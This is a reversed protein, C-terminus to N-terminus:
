LPLEKKLPSATVTWQGKGVNRTGEFVLYSYKGYHPVLQGLRPLSAFDDTMIVLFNEFGNWNEGALVFTHGARPYITGNIIVSDDVQGAMESLSEPLEPPNLLVPAYTRDDEQFIDPVEVEAEGETLNSGFTKFPDIISEDVYNVFRKRPNGLFASIIPEVEEPYLRRFLDYDPDVEITTVDRPVDITYTQEEQELWVSTDIPRESGSFRVPILLEYNQGSRDALTFNVTLSHSEEQVASDPFDVALVPAGPRDIWEPIIYALSAGSTNEFAEIWEEWSIKVGIYDSYVQKWADFFPKTGIQEEIMHYIMMVKNYGITRTEPSTREAFERVPFDNQENVYSVYQKLIDKRYDRAAEPSQLLKYRYDAGYVTAGECWNGRKYDVFVSNGWWNHLVEHGLSTSVIFPLHIVQQGLLTWAPMGYGTPFFNEVVTFRQFAYPGILTDYMEIYDAAPTLYNEFLVTDEPFFYCYVDTEGTKVSDIVYPAAMFMCGDARYPNQYKQVKRDGVVTSALRDGDAISEWAVPIDATVVFAFLGDKGQPYYYSSPSLYAGKESVTGTVERGVQENSFRIDSVDGFYVARFIMSFQVPETRDYSFLAITPPKISDVELAPLSVGEPLKTSDMDPIILIGTPVDRLAFSDVLAGNSLLFLNWGSDVQMTGTVRTTVLHPAVDFTLHIDYSDFTVETAETPAMAGATSVAVLLLVILM